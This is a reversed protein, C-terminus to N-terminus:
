RDRLNAPLRLLSNQFRVFGARLDSIEFDGIPGDLKLNRIIDSRPNLICSEDSKLIQYSM